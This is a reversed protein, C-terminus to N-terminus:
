RMSFRGPGHVARSASKDLCGRTNGLQRLGALDGAGWDADRRIVSFYMIQSDSGAHALGVVHGLEHIIVEGWTFGKGFGNDLNPKQSANLVVGGQVAKYVSSGDAEEFGGYYMNGGLGVTGPSNGFQKFDKATRWGIIVEAKDVNKGYPNPKQDTKGAYAFNLGTALHIRRIGERVQALGHKPAHDGNFTWRIRGCSDWRVRPKTSFVHQGAKGVPDYPPRVTVIAKDSTSVVSGNSSRATVRYTFEGFQDTPVELVFGQKTEEAKRDAPRWADLYKRELVLRTGDPRSSKKVTAKVMAGAVVNRDSYSVQPSVAASAALSALPMALLAITTVACIRSTRRSRPNV